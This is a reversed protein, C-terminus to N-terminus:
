GTGARRCCRRPSRRRRGDVPSHRCSQNTASPRRRRPATSRRSSPRTTSSMGGCVSVTDPPVAASRATAGRTSRSSPPQVRKRSRRISVSACCRRPRVSEFPVSPNASFPVCTARASSEFVASGVPSRGDRGPVRVARASDPELAHRRLEPAAKGASKRHAIRLYREGWNCAANRGRIAFPFSTLPMHARDPFLLLKSAFAGFREGGVVDDAPRRPLEEPDPEPAIAHREGGEAKMTRSIRRAANAPTIVDANACGGFACYGSASSGGEPRRGARLELKEEADVLDAAVHERADEVACADRELHREDRGRERDADADHEAHDGAVEAAPDVGGDGAQDVDRERERDQQEGEADRGRAREAVAADRPRM